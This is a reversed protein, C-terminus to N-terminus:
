ILERIARVEWTGAVATATLVVNNSGDISVALTLDATSGIDLTSTETKEVSTGASDWCATFTGARLNPTSDTRKVVFHWVCGDGATKAFSDITKPSSGSTINIAQPNTIQASNRFQLTNWVNIQYPQTSNGLTITKDSTHVRFASGFGGPDLVQLDSDDTNNGFNYQKSGIDFSVLARPVSSNLYFSKNTGVAGANLVQDLTPVAPSVTAPYWRGSGTADWTLVQGAAPPTTNDYLTFLSGTAPYAPINYIPTGSSSSHIEVYNTLSINNYIRINGFFSTRYANTGNGFAATRTSTNVFFGDGGGVDFVEFTTADTANGVYVQNNSVDTGLVTRNSLNKSLIDGTFTTTYENTLNGIALTHSSTQLLLATGGSSEVISLYASNTASGIIVASSGPIVQLLNTAGTFQLTMNKNVATSGNTLVDSLTPSGGAQPGWVVGGSGDAIPVYTNTATGTVSVLTGTYNPLTYTKSGGTISAPSFVAYNTGDPSIAFDSTAVPLLTEKQTASDWIFVRGGDVFCGLKYAFCTCSLLLSLWITLALKSLLRKGM